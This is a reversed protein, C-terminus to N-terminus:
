HKIVYSLPQFTEFHFDNIKKMKPRGKLALPFPKIREKITEKEKLM